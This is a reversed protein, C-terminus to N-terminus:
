GASSGRRWTSVPGACTRAGPGGAVADTGARAAGGAVPRRRGVGLAALVHAAVRRHGAPSLHLRDESWLRRTASSTTPWLDVLLAGHREATEAVAQNLIAVRPLIM